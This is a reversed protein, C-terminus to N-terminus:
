RAFRDHEGHRFVMRYGHFHHRAGTWEMKSRYSQRGYDVRQGHRHSDRGDFRMAGLTYASHYDGRWSDASAPAAVAALSVFAALAAGLKASKSSFKM